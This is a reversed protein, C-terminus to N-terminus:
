PQGDGPEPGLDEEDHHPNPILIAQGPITLPAGDTPEDLQNEVHAPTFGVSEEVPEWNISNYDPIQPYPVVVAETIITDDVGARTLRRDPGVIYTGRRTVVFIGFAKILPRLVTLEKYKFVSWAFMHDSPSPEVDLGAGM